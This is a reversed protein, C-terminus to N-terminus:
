HSSNLRTSKRDTASILQWGFWALPMVMVWRPEPLRLRAVKAGLLAVPVLLAYGWEVPWSQFIVEFQSQPREVAENLVVPHGLKLLALGLFLGFAAAFGVQWFDEREAPETSIMPM